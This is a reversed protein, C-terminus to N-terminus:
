SWQDLFSLSLALGQTLHLTALSARLRISVGPEPPAHRPAPAARCARRPCSMAMDVQLKASAETVQAVPAPLDVGLKAQVLNIQSAAIGLKALDLDLKALDVDLAPANSKTLLDFKTQAHDCKVKAMEIGVEALSVRLQVAAQSAKPQDPANDAAGITTAAALVVVVALATLSRALM